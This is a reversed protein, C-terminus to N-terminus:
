GKSGSNFYIVRYEEEELIKIKIALLNFQKEAEKRQKQMEAVKRHLSHNEM